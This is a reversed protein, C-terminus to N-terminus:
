AHDVLDGYVTQVYDLQGAHRSLHWYETLLFEPMPMEFGFFTITNGMAEDSLTAIGSLIAETTTRLRKALAARDANGEVSVDTIGLANLVYGNGEIAHAVIERISKATDSPKFDLKDDPTAAFTAQLAEMSQQIRGAALRRMVAAVETTM